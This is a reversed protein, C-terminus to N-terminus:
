RETRLEAADLADRVARTSAILDKVLREDIDLMGEYEARNRIGHCKALVRWTAPPIGLTHPLSQFVVFRHESRYGLRRLAALAFAHAANYALDFRSELSLSANAADTLRAEGSHRLGALEVPASPERKLQGIRVLNELEDSTM